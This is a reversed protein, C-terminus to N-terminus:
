IFRKGLTVLYNGGICRSATIVRIEPKDSSCYSAPKMKDRCISTISMSRRLKDDCAENTSFSRQSIGGSKVQMEQGETVLVGVSNPEDSRYQFLGIMSMYFAYAFPDQPLQRVTM